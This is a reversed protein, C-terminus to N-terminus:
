LLHHLGPQSGRGVASVLEITDPLAIIWRAKAALAATTWDAATWAAMWCAALLGADTLLAGEVHVVDVFASPDSSFEFLILLFFFFFNKPNM